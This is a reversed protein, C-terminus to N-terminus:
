TITKIIEVDSMRYFEKQKQRKNMIAPLRVLALCFGRFFNLDGRKLAWFFHIPLFIIHSVLLKKDTINKWIFIFQNRYATITVTDKKFNKKISGEEHFHTVVSNRDFMITYGAKQARYSLDIDEWYFPNYIEDMGHLTRYIDRRFVSSGGSVWFTDSKDIEGRAHQLMGYNWKAVGRGRLTTKGTEISEDMCGVAFLKDNEQLKKLPSKLFGATPVVDSNLLVVFDAESRQVGSNVASSFGKNVEHKVYDIKRSTIKRTSDIIESLAKEDHTESGDDVIIIKGEYGELSSLVSQINDHILHSGNFNPIIIDVTM